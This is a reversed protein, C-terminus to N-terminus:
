LGDECPCPRELWCETCVVAAPRVRLAAEECDLHVLEDDVFVVLQGPRIRDDCGGCRGGYRAEFASM